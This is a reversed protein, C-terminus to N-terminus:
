ARFSWDRIEGGAMIVRRVATAVLEHTRVEATVYCVANTEQGRPGLVQVSLLRLGLAQLATEIGQPAVAIRFAATCSRDQAFANDIENWISRIALDATFPADVDGVGNQFAIVTDRVHEKLHETAQILQKRRKSLM